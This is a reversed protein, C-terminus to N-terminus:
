TYPRSTKLLGLKAQSDYVTSVKSEGFFALLTAEQGAQPARFDSLVKGFPLLTCIGTLRSPENLTYVPPATSLIYPLMAM